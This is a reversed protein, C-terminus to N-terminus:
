AHKRNAAKAKDLLAQVATGDILRVNCQAAYAVAERAFRGTTLVFGGAAGQAAMARQLAQIADAGVRASDWERCQVLFTERDRRLALEGDARPRDRSPEIVQYGQLRFAQAVLPELERWGKGSARGGSATVTGRSRARRRLAWVIGLAAFVAVPVLEPLSDMAGNLM